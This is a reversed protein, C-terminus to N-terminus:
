RDGVNIGGEQGGTVGGWGGGQRGGSASRVAMLGWARCSSDYRCGQYARRRVNVWYNDVFKVCALSSFPGFLQM